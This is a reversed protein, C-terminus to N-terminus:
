KLQEYVARTAKRMEEQRMKEFPLAIPLDHTIVKRAYDKRKSSDSGWLAYAMEFTVRALRDEPTSATVKEFMDLYPAVWEISEHPITNSRTAIFRVNFLNTLSQRLIWNRCDENRKESSADIIGKLEALTENLTPVDPIKVDNFYMLHHKATVIAWRESDFRLDHHGYEDRKIAEALMASASELDSVNRMLRRTAVAALYAAERGKRSGREEVPLQDAVAIAVQCLTRTAHWHGKTAYALAHVTHALYNSKDQEALANYMKVLDVTLKPERLQKIVENCYEQARPNMGFDLYPIGKIYESKAGAQSWLGIWAPASYLRNLSLLSNKYLASVFAVEDLKSGARHALVLQALQKAREPDTKFLEPKINWAVATARVQESWENVYDELPIVTEARRLTVLTSRFEHRSPILLDDLAKPDVLRESTRSLYQNQIITPFFLNLWDLLVFDAKQAESPQASKRFFAEDALFARPHRLYLISFDNDNDHREAAAFINDSGTILVLRRNQNEAEMRQNIWELRALAEADRVLAYRPKNPPKSANLWDIWASQLKGFSQADEEDDEINPVPFAWKSSPNIYREVNLLRGQELLNVLRMLESSPGQREDFLKVLKPAKECLMQVLKGYDQNSEFEKFLSSQAALLEQSGREIERLLKNSIANGIRFLEEDHPPLLMLPVRHNPDQRSFIFDGILRALLEPTQSDEQEFINAYAAMDVPAIHMTVVDVDVAYFLQGDKKKFQQDQWWGEAYKFLGAAQRLRMEDTKAKGKHSSISTM